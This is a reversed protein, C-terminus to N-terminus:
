LGGVPEVVDVAACALESEHDRRVAIRAKLGENLAILEDVKALRLAATLAARLEQAVHHQVNAHVHQAM